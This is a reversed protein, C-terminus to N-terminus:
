IDWEKVNFTPLETLVCKKEVSANQLKMEAFLSHVLIRRRLKTFWSKAISWGRRFLKGSAAVGVFKMSSFVAFSPLM